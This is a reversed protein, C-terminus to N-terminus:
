LMSSADSCQTSDCYLTDVDTDTSDEDDTVIFDALSDDAMSEDSDSLTDPYDVWTSCVSASDETFLTDSFDSSWSSTVTDTSDGSNISTTNSQCDTDWNPVKNENAVKNQTTRSSRRRWVSGSQVLKSDCTTHMSVPYGLEKQAVQPYPPGSWFQGATATNKDYWDPGSNEEIGLVLHCIDMDRLYKDACSLGNIHGTLDSWDDIVYENGFKNNTPDMCFDQIRRLCALRSSKTSKDDEDLVRVIVRRPYSNNSNYLIDNNSPSIRRQCVLIFGDRTWQQDGASIKKHLHNMFADNKQDSEAWYVEINGLLCEVRLRHLTKHIGPCLKLWRPKSKTTMTHVQPM